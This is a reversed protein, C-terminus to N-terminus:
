VAWDDREATDDDADPLSVPVIEDKVWEHLIHTHESLACHATIGNGYDITHTCQAMITRGFILKITGFLQITGKSNRFLHINAFEMQFNQEPSLHDNPTM